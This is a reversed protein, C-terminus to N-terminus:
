FHLYVKQLNRMIQKGKKGTLTNLEFTSYRFWFIYLLHFLSCIDFTIQKIKKKKELYCKQSAKYLM